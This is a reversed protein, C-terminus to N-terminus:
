VVTGLIDEEPLLVFDVRDKQEQKPDIQIEEGAYKGYIVIDGANLDKVDPGVRVVSGRSPQEKEVSDPISLGHKSETKPADPKVLVWDNRPM